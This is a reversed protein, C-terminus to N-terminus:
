REYPIKSLCQIDSKLAKEYSRMAEQFVEDMTESTAKKTDTASMNKVRKKENNEKHPEQAETSLYRMSKRFAGVLTTCICLSKVIAGLVSGSGNATATRLESAPGHTPCTKANADHFERVHPDAHFISEPLGSFLPDLVLRLFVLQPADRRSEYDLSADLLPVAEVFEM